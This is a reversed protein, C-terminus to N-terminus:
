CYKPVYWHYVICYWLVYHHISILRATKEIYSIILMWFQTVNDCQNRTHSIIQLPFMNNIWLFLFQTLAFFEIRLHCYNMNSKSTRRSLLYTFCRDHFQVERILCLMIFNYMLITTSTRPKHFACTCIYEQHSNGLFTIRICSILLTNSCKKLIFWVLHLTLQM